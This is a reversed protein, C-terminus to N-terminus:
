QNPYLDLFISKLSLFNFKFGSDLLKKPIAQPFNLILDRDVRIVHKLILNFMFEPIPIFYIKNFYYRLEKMFLKNDIPCPTCVNFVGELFKNYFLFELIQTLDFLHFYSMYMLGDGIPSGLFCKTLKVMKKLIGGSSHLALGLRLSIKRVCNLNNKFLTNELEEILDPLFGVGKKISEDCLEQTNGYFGLGSAQVWLKPPTKLYEISKTLVKISDIRSNLLEQKNKKTFLCQINKGTLNILLDANELEKMWSNNINKADWQIYKVNSINYHNIKKRSFVVIKILLNRKFFNILYNAIFGSGGTIIIKIIKM